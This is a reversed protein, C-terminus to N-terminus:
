EVPVYADEYDWVSMPKAFYYGQFLDCGMEKLADVQEKTEVGETVVEMGLQKSLKIVSRVISMSRETHMTKRLFGMDLKITDMHIDKLMNLSSYGSGFDDMEVIFGYKRLKNVLGIVNKMDSMVATETIELRLNRAEISHKQILDTFAKYIDLYYFDRPSINVSIYYDVHGQKRWDRLQICAKEWIYYDLESILGTREFLEIFEGPPILGKEPHIWRVLAEGGRVVGDVSIQPQLYFCFQGGDLAEHFQGIIEQERLVNERLKEDYYAICNGVDDKISMIAMIAYDCMVSIPIEINDVEYVGLNIRVHFNTNQELHEIRSIEKRMENERFRDKPMIFAFRDGSLRGYVCGEDARRKMSDAIKVLIENGKEEGYINNVIKFDHIDTCLVYYTVGENQKLLEEAKKYFHERNYIGTMSDHDAKYKEERMREMEETHDHILFCSGIFHNDYIIKKYEIHYYMKKGDIIPRDDWEIEEVDEMMKDQLWSCYAKEFRELGIDENVRYMSRIQENLYICKKNLDFCIIGEDVSRIFLALMNEVLGVPIYYFALYTLVVGLVSYALMSYDFMGGYNLYISNIIGTVAMSIIISRYRRRFIKPAKIMCTILLFFSLAVFLYCIYVHINYWKMRSAVSFYVNGYSDTIQEVQFINQEFLNSIMCISDVIFSIVMLCYSTKKIRKINPMMTVTELIYNTLSMVMCVIGLYFLGYFVLALIRSVTMIAMGYLMQSATALSLLLLVAKKVPSNEVTHVYYICMLLPILMIVVIGFYVYKM